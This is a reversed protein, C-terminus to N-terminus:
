KKIKKQYNRKIWSFFCICLYSQKSIYHITNYHIWHLSWMKGHIRFLTDIFSYSCPFSIFFHLIPKPLSSISIIFFRHFKNKQGVQLDFHTTHPLLLPTLYQQIFFSPNPYITQLHINQQSCWIEFAEMYIKQFFDFYLLNTEEIFERIATHFGDIPESIKDFHEVKGGITHFLYDKEKYRFENGLFYGLDHHYLTISASCLVPDESNEM